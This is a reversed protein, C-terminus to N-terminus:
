LGSDGEFYDGKTSTCGEENRCNKVHVRSPTDTLSNLVAQLEAEIVDITQFHSYRCHLFRSVDCPALDPSSLPNPVVTM